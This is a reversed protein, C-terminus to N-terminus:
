GQWILFKISRVFPLSSDIFRQLFIQFRFIFTFLDAIIKHYNHISTKNFEVQPCWGYRKNHKMNADQKNYAKSLLESESLETQSPQSSDLQQNHRSSSESFNIISVVQM